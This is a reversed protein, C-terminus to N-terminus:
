MDYDTAMDFDMSLGSAQISQKIYTTSTEIAENTRRAAQYLEATKQFNSQLEQLSQESMNPAQRDHFSVVGARADITACLQNSHIMDELIAQAERVDNLAARQTIADLSLTIFTKTLRQIRHRKAAEVCQKALGMNNDERFMDTYSQMLRDVNKNAVVAEAFANYKSCLRNIRSLVSVGISNSSKDKVARGHVIVSLLALKKYGEVAIASVAEGPYNSLLTLTHLAAAHQKMGIQVLGKYYLYSMVRETDAGHKYIDYIPHAVVDAAIRYLRAAVALKAFETHLACYTTPAVLRQLLAKVALVGRIAQNCKLLIRSLMQALSMFPEPCQQIKTIDGNHFLASVYAIWQDRQPTDEATQQLLLLIALPLPHAAADMHPLVDAIADQVAAKASASRFKNLYDNVVTTVAAISTSAEAEAHLAELDTRLESADM